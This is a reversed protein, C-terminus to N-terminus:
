FGTREHITKRLEPEFWFHSGTKDVFGHERALSLLGYAALAAFGLVVVTALVHYMPGPKFEEQKCRECIFPKPVPPPEYPSM